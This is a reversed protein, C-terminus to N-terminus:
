DIGVVPTKLLGFCFAFLGLSLAVERYFGLFNLKSRHCVRIVDGDLRPAGTDKQFRAILNLDDDSEPTTFSGMPVFPSPCDFAEEGCETFV